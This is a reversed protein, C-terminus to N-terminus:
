TTFLTNRINEIRKRAKKFEVPDDRADGRPLANNLDPETHGGPKILMIASPRIRYEGIKIWKIDQDIMDDIKNAEEQTVIIEEKNFLVVIM